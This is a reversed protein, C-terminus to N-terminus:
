RRVAKPRGYIASGTAMERWTTESGAWRRYCESADACGGGCSCVDPPCWPCGPVPLPHTEGTAHAAPEAGWQEDCPCPVGAETCRLCTSVVVATM